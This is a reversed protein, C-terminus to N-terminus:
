DNYDVSVSKITTAQWLVSTSYSRVFVTGTQSSTDPIPGIIPTADLYVTHNNGSHELSVTYDTDLSFSPITYEGLLTATPKLRYLQVIGSEPRVRVFYGYGVDPQWRGGISLNPSSTSISEPNFIATITYDNSAPAWSSYYITTEGVSGTLENSNIALSGATGSYQTWIHGSDSTHNELYTGDTDTFTDVLLAPAATEVTTEFPGPLVLWDALCACPLFLILLITAFWSKM